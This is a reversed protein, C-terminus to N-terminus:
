EGRKKNILEVVYLLPKYLLLPILTALPNFWGTIFALVLSGVMLATRLIYSKAVANQVSKGNIKAFEAAEEESMERNGRLTIYDNIARNVQVSLILFNLATVFSGLLAGSFVTWKFEKQFLAFGLVIFVSAILEGILLYLVGKYNNKNKTEMKEGNKKTHNKLILLHM